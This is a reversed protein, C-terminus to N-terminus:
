RVVGTLSQRGVIWKRWLAIWLQILDEEKIRFDEPYLACSLFCHQLKLDKLRDYSFRLQQFVDDELGNVSKVYLSLEKLANRWKYLDDIGKMCSAVTIIALPLGACHKAISKAIPELNPINLVVRGVKELFLNWAKEEALPNIKVVRCCGVQRCVDFSRTTLVIKSGASPEPIGVKDLFIRDWLDDLIMLFRSNRSLTEVLMGAKTTEDEDGSFTVGIKSAIDKQLKATSM